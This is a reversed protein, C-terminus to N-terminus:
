IDVMSILYRLEAEVEDPPSVTRLIQERLLAGFRQRLRHIAVDIAGVSIRHRKALDSRSACGGGSTLFGRLDDFM